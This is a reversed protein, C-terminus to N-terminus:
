PWWHEPDEKSNWAELCAREIESEDAETLRKYIWNANTVKKGAVEVIHWDDLSESMIGVSPDAGLMDFEVTIELGRLVKAKAKM